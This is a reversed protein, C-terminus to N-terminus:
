LAHAISVVIEADRRHGRLEPEVVRAEALVGALLAPLRWDVAMWQWRFMHRSAAVVAYPVALLAPATCRVLRPWRGVANAVREAALGVAAAPALEAVLAAIVVPTANSM